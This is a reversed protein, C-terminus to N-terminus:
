HYKANLGNKSSGFRTNSSSRSRARRLPKQVSDANLIMPKSAEGEKSGGTAAEENKKLAYLPMGMFKPVDDQASWKSNNHHTHSHGHRGRTSDKRSHHLYQKVKFNVYKFPGEGPLGPSWPHIYIGRYLVFWLLVAAMSAVVKEIMIHFYLGTVVLMVDWLLVLLAMLCFLVRVKTTHKRYNTRLHLYEELSLKALVCSVEDAPMSLDASLRRHEENRILDKIKEWGLYSKGEEIMFLNNWVLLFCHGSIDFGKWKFGGKLCENKNLFKTVNCIGSTEEVYLFLGTVGYWVGTALVCRIMQNKVVTPNGCSYTYSTVFVFTGCVLLTWGWGFKVMYVNFFNDPRALYHTSAKSFDGVVSLLLVGVIYLGVKHSLDVGYMIKRAVHVVMMGLVSQVSAAEALPRTGGRSGTELPPKFKMAPGSSRSSGLNFSTSFKKKNGM